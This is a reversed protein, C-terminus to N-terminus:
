ALYEATVNSRMKRIKMENQTRGKDTKRNRKRKGWERSYTYLGLQNPPFVSFCMFLTNNKEEASWVIVIKRRVTERQRKLVLCVIEVKAEEM